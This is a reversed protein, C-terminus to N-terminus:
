WRNQYWTYSLSLSASVVDLPPTDLGASHMAEAFVGVSWHQGSRHEFGVRAVAIVDLPSSTDMGDPTVDLPRGSDMFHLDAASLVRAGVGLGLHVTPAWVLGLRLTAGIRLQAIRTARVLRGTEPTGTIMATATAYTVPEFAAGVLDGELDLWNRLGVAVALEGGAGRATRSVPAGDGVGVDETVRAMASVPRLAITTEYRDAVADGALGTLTAIAVGAISVGKM